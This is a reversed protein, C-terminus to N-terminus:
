SVRGSHIRTKWPLSYPTTTRLKTELERSLPPLDHKVLWNKLDGVTQTKLLSSLKSTLM